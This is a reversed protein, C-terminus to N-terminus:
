FPNITLYLYIHIWKRDWNNVQHVHILCLKPARPVSLYPAWFSTFILYINKEKPSFTNEWFSIRWATPRKKKFSDLKAYPNPPWQLPFFANITWLSIRLFYDQFQLHQLVCIVVSQSVKLLSYHCYNITLSIRTLCHDLVASSFSKFASTPSLYDFTHSFSLCTTRLDDQPYPARGLYRHRM